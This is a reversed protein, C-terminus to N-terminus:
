HAKMVKLFHSNRNIERLLTLILALLVLTYISRVVVIVEGGVRGGFIEESVVVFFSFALLVTSQWFKQITIKYRFIMTSAYLILASVQIIAVSLQPSEVTLVSNFAAALLAIPLITYLMYRQEGKIEAPKHLVTIAIQLAGSAVAAPILYNTGTRFEPGLMLSLHDSWLASVSIMLVLILYLIGCGANHFGRLSEWNSQGAMKVITPWFLAQLPSLTMLAASCFFGFPGSFGGLIEAGYRAGIIIRDFQTILGLAIFWPVMPLGHLALKKLTHGELGRHELRYHSTIYKRRELKITHYAALAAAVSTGALAALPLANKLGAFNPLLLLVAVPGAVRGSASLCQIAAYEKTRGLSQMWVQAVNIILYSLIGAAALTAYTGLEPRNNMINTQQIFEAAAACLLILACSTMVLQWVIGKALRSREIDDARPLLVGIPQQMWQAACTGVFTVTALYLAYDGFQTPSTHRTIFPLSFLTIAAPIVTGVTLWILRQLLTM